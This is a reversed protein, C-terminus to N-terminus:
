VPSPSMGPYAESCRPHTSSAMNRFAVLCCVTERARSRCSEATELVPAESACGFAYDLTLRHSALLCSYAAIGHCQTAFQYWQILVMRSQASHCQPSCTAMVPSPPVKSAFTRGAATWRYVTGSRGAAVRWRCRPGIMSSM